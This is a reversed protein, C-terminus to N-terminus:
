SCYAWARIPSGSGNRIKLPSAVFLSRNSLQDLNAFSEMILINNPLWFEDHGYSKKAVGEIMAQDCAITDSGIARIGREQFLKAAEMALGPANSAYWKWNVGTDWYKMWGYHLLAIEGEKVGDGMQEELKLLHEPTLLEGPQPDFQSLDYRVAPRILYDVPFTEITVDMKSPHIHAPSDVHTGTHEAMSISQCYYGDHKHTVTQDIVLHPHTPFRPIGPELTVSLDVVRLKALQNYVNNIIHEM